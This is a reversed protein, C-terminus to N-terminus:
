ASDDFDLQRWANTPISAESTGKFYRWTSNTTLFVRASADPVLTLSALGVFLLASLIHLCSTKM